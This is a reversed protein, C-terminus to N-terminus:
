RRGPPDGARGSGVAARELRDHIATWAEGAPPRIVLIRHAPSADLERLAAYLGQAYGSPDASLAIGRAGKPLPGCSLWAVTSEAADPHGEVEDPAVLELPKGPAYHAALRGSARPGEQDGPRQLPGILAEIASAPIAGPRLLRPRDGSLDVITSELGVASPGGDLVLVDDGPFEARVHEARTPSIRGFRNASPAAVAGGFAALLAQAVPHAPMRLGVTDQGGTLVPDVQAAKRLVLTLPGPWFAAALERAAEPVRVAWDELVAAAPLHVILPHDTPRGKVAFIKRVALPNGADAALGYVTETPIAVLRGARLRAVAEALEGSALESRM